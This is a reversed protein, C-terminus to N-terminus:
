WQRAFARVDRLDALHQRPRKRLREFLYLRDHVNWRPVNVVRVRRWDRELLAHFRENATCGDWEGLYAVRKGTYVDLCDAAMPDLWPPWCLFLTRDAHQTLVDPRGFRVETWVSTWDLRPAGPTSAHQDYAVIDVGREQLCRAWYGNGAGMEVLPGWRALARLAAESPVAFSYQLTLEWRPAERLQGKVKRYADLYPNWTTM